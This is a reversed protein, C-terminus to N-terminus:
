VLELEEYEHRIIMDWLPYGLNSGSYMGVDVWDGRLMGCRRGWRGLEAKVALGNDIAVRFPFARVLKGREDM